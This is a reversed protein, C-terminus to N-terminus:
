NLMVWTKVVVRDNILLLLLWQVIVPVDGKISCCQGREDNEEHNCMNELNEM